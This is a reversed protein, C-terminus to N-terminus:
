GRITCPEFSLPIRRNAHITVFSSRNVRRTTPTTNSKRTASLKHRSMSCEALMYSYTVHTIAGNLDNVADIISGDTM